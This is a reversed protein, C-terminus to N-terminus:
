STGRLIGDRVQEEVGDYAASVEELDLQPPLEDIAQHKLLFGLVQAVVDTETGRRVGLREMFEPSAYIDIQVTDDQHHGTVLYHHDGTAEIQPRDTM